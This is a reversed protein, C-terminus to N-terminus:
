RLMWNLLISLRKDKMKKLANEMAAVDKKKSSIGTDDACDLSRLLIEKETKLEEM